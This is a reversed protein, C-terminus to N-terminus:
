QKWSTVTDIMSKYQPFCSEGEGRFYPSASPCVILGKHDDFAVRILQETEEAIEAPTAEYMRHVQINGELCVRDRAYSKAEEPLIDGLPPAEFPHLVDIGAHLIGSFVRRISGHCHVHVRGGADHILDIIPKDYRLNFDDFDAPGHLPPTVFEEGEMCFYPGLGQALLFKMRQLMTNMQRECLAHLIDRDTVSALAFAESGFLRAAFGGPNVGLDVQVIGRDGMERVADHFGSLDPDLDPLPLSLYTEADERTKLLFTEEIGPKGDLSALNSFQLDGGPTHLISIQREFSDSYRETEFELDYVSAAGEGAFGVPSSFRYIWPTLQTPIAPWNTKLESHERLYCRRLREQRNM